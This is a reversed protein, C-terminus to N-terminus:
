TVHGGSVPGATTLIVIARIPSSTVTIFPLLCVGSCITLFSRPGIPQKGVALILLPHDGRQEARDEVGVATVGGACARVPSYPAWWNLRGLLRM